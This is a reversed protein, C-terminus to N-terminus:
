QSTARDSKGRSERKWRSADCRSTSPPHVRRAIALAGIGSKLKMQQQQVKLIGDVVRLTLAEGTPM